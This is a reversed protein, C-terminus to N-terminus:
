KCIEGLLKLARVRNPQLRKLQDPVNKYCELRPSYAVAALDPMLKDAFGNDIADQGAFWTEAAMWNRVKDPPQGCRASYTSVMTENIQGLTEAWKTMDEATAGSVSARAEHIMIFSGAGISIEDGAMAVLSAASAAFGDVFVNIKARSQTLLNYIARADTVSGGESDIRVDIARPGGLERFQKAFDASSIGDGWFDKGIPGYLYIEAADAGKAARFRY